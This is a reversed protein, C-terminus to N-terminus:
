GFSLRVMRPGRRTQAFSFHAPPEFSVEPAQRAARQEVERKSFDLEFFLGPLAHTWGSIDLEGESEGYTVFSVNPHGQVADRIDRVHDVNFGGVDIDWGGVDMRHTKQEYDYTVSPSLGVDRFFDEFVEDIGPKPVERPVNPGAVEDLQDGEPRSSEAISEVREILQSHPM